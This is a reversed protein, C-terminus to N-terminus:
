LRGGVEGETGRGRFYGGATATVLRDVVCASVGEEPSM